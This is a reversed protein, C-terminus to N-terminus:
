YPFVFGWGFFFRTLFAVRESRANTDRFVCLGLAAEFGLGLWWHVSNVLFCLAGLVM